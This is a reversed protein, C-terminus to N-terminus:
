GFEDNLLRAHGIRLFEAPDAHSAHTKGHGLPKDLGAM